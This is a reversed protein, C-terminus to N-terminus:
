FCMYCDCILIYNKLQVRFHHSCVFNIYHLRCLRDIRPQLRALSRLPSTSRSCFVKSCAENAQAAAANEVCRKAGDPKKFLWARM